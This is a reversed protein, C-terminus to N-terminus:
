SGQKKTEGKKASTIDVILSSVLDELKDPLVRLVIIGHM